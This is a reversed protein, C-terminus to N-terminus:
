LDAAIAVISRLCSSCPKLCRNLYNEYLDAKGLLILRVRM